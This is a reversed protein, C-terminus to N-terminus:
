LYCLYKRIVEMMNSFHYTPIPLAFLNADEPNIITFHIDKHESRWHSINDTIFNFAKMNFFTPANIAITDAGLAYCLDIARTIETDNLNDSTQIVKVPFNHKESLKKVYNVNLSDFNKWVALDIGDFGAEQVLEFVLDLGYGSLADTSFLFEAKKGAIPEEAM